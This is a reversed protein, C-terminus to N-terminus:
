QASVPKTKAARREAWLVAHCSHGTVPAFLPVAQLNDSRHKPMSRQLAIKTESTIACGRNANEMPLQADIRPASARNARSTVFGRRNAMM